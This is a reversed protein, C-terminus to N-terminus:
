KGIVKLLITKERIGISGNTICTYLGSDNKDLLTFQLWGDEDIMLKNERHTLNVGDKRWTVLHTSNDVLSCNLKLTANIYRIIETPRTLEQNTANVPKTSATYNTANGDREQVTTDCTIMM